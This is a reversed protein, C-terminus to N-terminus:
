CADGGVLRLGPRQPKPNRILEAFAELEPEPVGDKYTAKLTAMAEANWKEGLMAKLRKAAAVHSLPPLEVVPGTLKHETGRRPLHTPLNADDTARYPNFDGGLPLGKGKRFAAAEEVSSTGTMLQEVEKRNTQAATDAVTKYSEGIVPAGIPFGHEDEKIRPIVHFVQRGEANTLVLQAMDSRWPNSTVLVKEGVMVGPVHTLDYEAGGFNVYMGLKGSNVKREVPDSIAQERCVEVPPAKVLQSETITMWHATRTKGHRGHIATANWVARWKAALANLEALDAVPRFKLGFEFNREILNRANEVQGTSRAAGPAHAIAEIGLAKCLNLTMASTNASGPDMYLIRPVGHMMDPGGREQMANILVNCLNEGSEAGMVYEVYIWGSTHDTIEYSWVRDAAIRALNKPKNKYFKDHPMVHLGNAGNKKQPKLYYLVCLSADIQWVHNPHESKLSTHPTPALLQDPHLGYVRLARNIASESLPTLEGTRPDLREARIYGDARLAQVVTKLSAVMKGNRRLTDILVGSIYRAEERTLDSKGADARRKRTKTTVAVEKLKRHLTAPSMQLRECAQQKITQKEGHGAARLAQAVAVLQETIVANM